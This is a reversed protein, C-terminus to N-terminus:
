YKGFEKEIRVFAFDILISGKPKTKSHLLQQSGGIGEDKRFLANPHILNWGFNSEKCPLGSPFFDERQIPKFFSPPLERITTIQTATFLFIYIM